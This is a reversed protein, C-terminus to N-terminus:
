EKLNQSCIFSFSGLVLSRRRLSKKPIRAVSDRVADVNESSRATLKRGSTSFQGKKTSKIMTGTDKFMKAWRTIQFKHPFTNSNCRAQVTNLSKTELYLTVCFTKEGMSWLMEKFSKTTRNDILM